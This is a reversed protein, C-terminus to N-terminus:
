TTLGRYGALSEDTLRNAIVGDAVEASTRVMKLGLGALRM